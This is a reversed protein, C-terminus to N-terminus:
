LFLAKHLNKPYHQKRLKSIDNVIEAYEPSLRFESNHRNHEFHLLTTRASKEAEELCAEFADDDKFDDVPKCALEEQVGFVNIPVPKLDRIHSEFAKEEYRRHVKPKVKDFIECKNDFYRITLARAANLATGILVSGVVLSEITSMKDFM